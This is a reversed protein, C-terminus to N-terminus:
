ASKQRIVENFNLSLLCQLFGENMKSRTRGEEKREEKDPLECGEEGPGLKEMGEVHGSVM